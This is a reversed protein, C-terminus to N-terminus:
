HVAHAEAKKKKAEEIIKAELEHPMQEYHDFSETHV